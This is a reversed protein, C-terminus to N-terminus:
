GFYVAAIVGMTKVPKKFSKYFKCHRTCVYIFVGIFVIFLAMGSVTLAFTLTDNM